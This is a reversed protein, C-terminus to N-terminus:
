TLKRSEGQGSQATSQNVVGCGFIVLHDLLLALVLLTVIIHTTNMSKAGDSSENSSDFGIRMTVVTISSAAMAAGAIFQNLCFGSFRFLLRRRDSYWCM